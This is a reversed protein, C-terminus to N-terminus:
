DRPPRDVVAMLTPLRGLTLEPQWLSRRQGGLAHSSLAQVCLTEHAHEAVDGAPLDSPGEAQCAQITTVIHGAHPTAASASAGALASIIAVLVILISNLRVMCRPYPDITLCHKREEYDPAAAIQGEILSAV